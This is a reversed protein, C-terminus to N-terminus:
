LNAFRKSLTVRCCFLVHNITEILSNVAFTYVKKQINYLFFSSICKKRM